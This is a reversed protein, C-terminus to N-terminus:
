VPRKKNPYVAEGFGLAHSEPAMGPTIRRRGAPCPEEDRNRRRAIWARLRDMPTQKCDRATAAMYHRGYHGGQEIM